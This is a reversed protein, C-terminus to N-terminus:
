RRCDGVSRPRCSGSRYPSVARGGGKHVTRIAQALDDRSAGKLLYGRAGAAIGEFIYEDKRGSRAGTCRPRSVAAEASARATHLLSREIMVLTPSSRSSRSSRSGNRAGRWCRRWRRTRAMRSAGTTAGSRWMRICCSTSATSTSTTTPRTFRSPRRATEALCEPLIGRDM